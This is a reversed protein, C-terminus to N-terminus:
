LERPVSPEQPASPEAMADALPEEQEQTASGGLGDPQLPEAEAERLRDKCQEVLKLAELEKLVCLKQGHYTGLCLIGLVVLHVLVHLFGPNHVGFNPRFLSLFLFLTDMGYVVTSAISAGPAANWVVLGLAMVTAALTMLIPILVRMPEYVSYLQGIARLEVPYWLAVHYRPNGSDPVLLAIVIFAVLPLAGVVRALNCWPRHRRMVVRYQVPIM